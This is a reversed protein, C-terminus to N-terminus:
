RTRTGALASVVRGKVSRVGRLFENDNASVPLRGRSHFPRMRNQLLGRVVLAVAIAGYFCVLAILHTVNMV